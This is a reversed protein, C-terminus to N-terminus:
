MHISRPGTRLGAECGLNRLEVPSNYARRISDSQVKKKKTDDDCERREDHIRPIRASMRLRYHFFKDQGKGKRPRRTIPEPNSAEAQHGLAIRAYLEAVKSLKRDSTAHTRLDSACKTIDVIIICHKRSMIHTPNNM